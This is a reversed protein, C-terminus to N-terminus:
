QAPGSFNRLNHIAGDVHAATEIGMLYHGCLRLGKHRSKELKWAALATAAEIAGEVAVYKGAGPRKGLAFSEEAYGWNTDRVTAYGDLVNAATLAGVETFFLKHSVQQPPSPADPVESAMALLAFLPLIVM